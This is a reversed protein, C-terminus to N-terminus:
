QRVFQKLVELEMEYYVLKRGETIYTKREWSATRVAVEYRRGSELDELVASTTELLDGMRASQEATLFGSYGKFTKTMTAQKINDAIRERTIADSEKVNRLLFSDVGGRSNTYYLVFRNCPAVVEYDATFSETQVSVLSGVKLSSFRALFSFPGSISEGSHDITDATGDEKTYTVQMIQTPLSTFWFLQRPDIQSTIPLQLGDALYNENPDYDQVDDFIITDVSTAGVYVWAQVQLSNYEISDQGAGVSATLDNTKLYRRVIDNISVLVKGDTDKYARGSYVVNTATNVRITFDVFDAGGLKETLSTYYTKWIPIQNAM